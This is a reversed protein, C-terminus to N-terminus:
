SIYTGILKKIYDKEDLVSMSETIKFRDKLIKIYEKPGFVWHCALDENALDEDFVVINDGVVYRHDNHPLINSDIERYMQNLTVEKARTSVEGNNQYIREIWTLRIQTQDISKMKEFYKVLMELYKLYLPVCHVLLRDHVAKIYEYSQPASKEKGHMFNQLRRCITKEAVSPLDFGKLLSLAYDTNVDGHQWEKLFSFTHLTFNPIFASDIEGLDELKQTLDDTHRYYINEMEQFKRRTFHQYRGVISMHTWELESVTKMTGVRKIYNFWDNLSQYFKNKLLALLFMGIWKMETLTPWPELEFLILILLWLSGFVSLYLFINAPLM